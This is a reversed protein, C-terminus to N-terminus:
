YQMHFNWALGVITSIYKRNNAHLSAESRQGLFIAQLDSFMSRSEESNSQWAHGFSWKKRLKSRRCKQDVVFKISFENKVCKENAQKHWNLVLNLFGFTACLKIFVPKFFLMDKLLYFLGLISLDASRTYIDHYKGFIMIKELFRWNFFAGSAWALCNWVQM